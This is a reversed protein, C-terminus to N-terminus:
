AAYRNRSLMDRVREVAEGAVVLPAYGYQEWLMAYHDQPPTFDPHLQVFVDGNGFAGRAGAELYSEAPMGDALLVDHRPLEIHYYTMSHRQLQVVNAGNILHRIPILVGEAFVAHDPSLLLNRKPRGPGFANAAIRVPLVRQRNPHRRFDVRRHGIWRIPQPKGSITQVLDDRHLREIPVEGRPTAIRTGAAYCTATVTVVSGTGGDSAVAFPAAAYDGQLSLTAVAAGGNKVTLTGGSWTAADAKVTALDITDGTRFNTITALFSSPQDLRLAGAADTFDLTQTAGVTVAAVNVLGNGGVAIRGSGAAIATNVDLTDANAVDITGDNSFTGGGDALTFTGGAAAANLTGAFNLDAGTGANLTALAGAANSDITVAPGIGFTAPGTAQLTDATQANGINLVVNDLTTASAFLLSAGSGTLDITGPSSEGADEVTLSGAITAREGADRLELAGLYTVDSFTGGSFLIGGGNDAIMGGNITGSSALTVTGLPTGAGITLTGFTNDLLGAETVGAAGTIAGIGSTAVSGDLVLSASGSLAITGASNDWAGLTGAQDYGITVTENDLNVTGQNTFNLPVIRLLGDPHSADITGQNIISEGGSTTSDLVATPGTQTVVENPGLILEGSAQVQLTGGLGVPANDLTQSFQTALLGNDTIAPATLSGVAILSGAEITVAGLVDLSGDIQLANDAANLLLNGVVNTVGAAITVSNSGPNAIVATDFGTPLLSPSWNAPTNWDGGGPNAWTLTQGTGAGAIDTGGAGDPAFAFDSLNTADVFQLYATGSDSTLTLAGGGFSAGTAAFDTLDVIDGSSFGSITMAGLGIQDGSIRWSAGPDFQLTSFNTITSGFGYLTGTSSGSALELVGQGGYIAGDFVAGPDAILRYDGGIGAFDVAYQGGIVTGANTFTGHLNTSPQGFLGFYVGATGGTITGGSLNTVSAGEYGFLGTGSGTVLGYNVVSGYSDLWIGAVSTGAITGTSTNTVSGGLKEFAGSPGTLTGANVIRVGPQNGASGHYYDGQIDVAAGGYVGPSNSATISAGNLNTVLGPGSISVGYGGGAIRGGAQNTIEGNSVNDAFSGLQIAASSTDATSIMGSNSITWSNSGGGPGYLATGSSADIRGTISIPSGLTNSLTVGSTYTGSIPNQIGSKLAINTGGKGDSSLAFDSSSFSGQIHLTTTGQSANTLALANNAFTDGTAAFGTLDITDSSTFGTITITGLGSPSTNGTVTWKAGPDFQLTSFNTIGTSAFTGLSAASGNGAALELVGTGGGI